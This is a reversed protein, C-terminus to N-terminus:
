FYFFAMLYTQGNLKYSWEVLNESMSESSKTILM